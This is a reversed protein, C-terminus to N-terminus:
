RDIRFGIRTTVQYHGVKGGEVHGRVEAVEFWGIHDVSSAATEIANEIAKTISETSSGVIEIKKYVHDSM